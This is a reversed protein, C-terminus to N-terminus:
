DQRSVTVSVADSSEPLQGAPKLLPFRKLLAEINELRRNTEQLRANTQAMQQRTLHLESQIADLRDTVPALCGTCLALGAGWGVRWCCRWVGVLRTWWDGAPWRGPIVCREGGASSRKGRGWGGSQLCLFSSRRQGNRESLVQCRVSVVGDTRGVSQSM